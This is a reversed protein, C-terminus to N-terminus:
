QAGEVLVAVCHGDMSLATALGLLRSGVRRLSQQERGALPFAFSPHPEELGAIGPVEGSRLAELLAVLTIGGSAGMSEGLWSKIATVPLSAASAGLAAAVGAAEARDHAAAGNASAYWCSLEAPEVGAKALVQRVLRSLTAARSEEEGLADFATAGSLLWGLPTAGRTKAANEEELVLLGAGEALVFGQSRRDFPRAIEETSDGTGALRGCRCHALYSELCLEEVGGALLAVAGGSSIQDAGYLVAAQGSAEGASITSNIGALKYWIATQGAAANIVCNAFDMPSVLGPGLTQGRRDFEAITRLSCFTTGLALGVPREGAADAGYGSQELARGAAALLLRATRDVPRLNRQGLYHTADFNSIEGGLHCPLNDTPFLGIPGLASTGQLLAQHLAGPSDAVPSLVGAGVIAIRQSM